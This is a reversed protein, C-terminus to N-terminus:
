PAACRIRPNDLIDVGMTRAKVPTVKSIDSRQVDCVIRPVSMDVVDPPPSPTVSRNSLDGRAKATLYENIGYSMESARRM